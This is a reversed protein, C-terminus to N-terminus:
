ITSNNSNHRSNSSNRSSSKTTSRTTSSAISNRKRAGPSSFPAATLAFSPVLALQAAPTSVSTASTATPCRMGPRYLLQRSQRLSIFVMLHEFWLKVHMTCAQTVFWESHSQLVTAHWPMWQWSCWAKLCSCRTASKWPLYVNSAKKWTDSCPLIKTLHGVSTCLKELTALANKPSPARLAWSEKAM